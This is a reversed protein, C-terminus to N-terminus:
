LKEGNLYTELWQREFDDRKTRPHTALHEILEPSGWRTLGADTTNIFWDQSGNILQTKRPNFMVGNTAEVAAAYEAERTLALDTLM